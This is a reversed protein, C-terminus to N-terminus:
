HWPLTPTLATLLGAIWRVVDLVGTVVAWKFGALLGLGEVRVDGATFAESAAEGPEDSQVLRRATSEDVTVRVTADPHPGARLERVRTDGTTRFSVVAVDGDSREIRLNVREDDLHSGLVGLDVQGVRDNYTGAVRALARYFETGLGVTAAGDPDTAVLADVREALAELRSRTVTARRRDGATGDELVPRLRDLVPRVSHARSAIPAVRTAYAAEDIQGRDRATQLDALRAELTDLTRALDDLAEGAVRVRAAPTEAAALRREVDALTLSGEIAGGQAGIAGSVVTGPGGDTGAGQYPGTDVDTGGGTDTASGGDTANESPTAAALSGGASATAALVTLALALAVARFLTQRTM